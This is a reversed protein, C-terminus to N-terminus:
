FCQKAADDFCLISHVGQMVNWYNREHCRGVNNRRMELSQSPLLYDGRPLGEALCARMERLQADTCGRERSRRLLSMAADEYLGHSFSDDTWDYRLQFVRADSIM